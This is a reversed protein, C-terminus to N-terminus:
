QTIGGWPRELLPELDSLDVVVAMKGEQRDIRALVQAFCRADAAERFESIQDAEVCVAWGHRSRAVIYHTAHM